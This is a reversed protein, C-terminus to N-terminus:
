SDATCIHEDGETGGAIVHWQVGYADELDIRDPDQRLVRCGLSPARGALTGLDAAPVRICVYALRGNAALEIAGGTLALHFDARGLLCGVGTADTPHAKQKCLVQLDFLRSYFREAQRLSEVHLAVHSIRHSSM